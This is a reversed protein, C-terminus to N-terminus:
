WSRGGLQHDMCRQFRHSGPRFNRACHRYAHNYRGRNHYGYGPEASATSFSGMGIVMSVALGVLGVAGFLRKM